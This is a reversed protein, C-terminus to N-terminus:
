SIGNYRKAAIYKWDYARRRGKRKAVYRIPRMGHTRRFNNVWFHRIYYFYHILEPSVEATFDFSYNDPKFAYVTPHDANSDTIETVDTVEGAKVWEADPDDLRKFYFTGKGNMECGM